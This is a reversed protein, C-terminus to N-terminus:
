FFWSESKARPNVRKAFADFSTYDGERALGAMGHGLTIVGNVFMQIHYDRYFAELKNLPRLEARTQSM